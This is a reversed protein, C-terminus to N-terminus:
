ESRETTLDDCEYPEYADATLTVEDSGTIPAELYLPDVFEYARHLVTGDDNLTFRETVTLEPSNRVAVPGAGEPREPRGEGAQPEGPAGSMPAMIWGDDFGSTTVVLTDGEWTGTSYGARSPVHDDPMGTGDLHITRVLDMFGYTMRIETDEQEIVNVMQDFWWDLVINTPECQFRPNDDATAGEM